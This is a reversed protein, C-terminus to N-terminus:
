TKIIFFKMNQNELVEDVKEYLKHHSEDFNSFNQRKMPAKAGYSKALFDGVMGSATLLFRRTTAIIIKIAGPPRALLGEWVTM